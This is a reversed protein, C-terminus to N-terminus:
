FNIAYIITLLSRKRQSYANKDRTLVSVRSISIAIRDTRWDTLGDRESIRGFRSLMNDYMYNRWWPVRYGLLELKILILCRRSIGVPYNGGASASFVRPTYFIKRKRGVLRYIEFVICHLAMNSRFTIPVRIRDHLKWHGQTVGLRSNLTM